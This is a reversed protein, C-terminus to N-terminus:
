FCMPVNDVIDVGKYFIPKRDAVAQWAKHLM